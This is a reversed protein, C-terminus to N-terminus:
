NLEWNAKFYFQNRILTGLLALGIVKFYNRVGGPSSWKGEDSFLDVVFSKLKV